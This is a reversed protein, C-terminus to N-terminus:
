PVVAPRWASDKAQVLVEALITALQEPTVGKLLNVAWFGLRRIEGGKHAPNFQRVAELATGILIRTEPVPGRPDDTRLAVGTVVYDPMGGRRDESSTELLQAKGPILRAGWREAAPLVLFIADLGSPPHTYHVRDVKQVKIVGLATCAIALRDVTEQDPELLVIELDIM